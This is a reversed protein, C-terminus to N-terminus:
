KINSAAAFGSVFAKMCDLSALKICKDPDDYNKFRDLNDNRAEIPTIHPTAYIYVFKTHPDMRGSFAFHAFETTLAFLINQLPMSLRGQTLPPVEWIAEQYKPAQKKCFAAVRRNREENIAKIEIDDM